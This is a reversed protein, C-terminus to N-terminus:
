NARPALPSVAKPLDRAGPSTIVRSLVRAIQEVAPPKDIFYELGAARARQLTEESLFGSLLIWPLYSRRRGVRQSLTIGDIDPMAFDCIVAATAASDPGSLYAEAAPAQGFPKADYGMRRVLSVLIELVLSDDDVCVIEQGTGAPLDRGATPGQPSLEAAAAPLFVHFVTGEGPSSYVKIVGAHQKVIGHVVALGLGTGEGAKRTTYFPEFIRELVAPTMGCGSDRVSLHLYLGPRFDTSPAEPSLVAEFSEEIVEIIGGNMGKLAHAANACLNLVVQHLQTADGLIAPPSRKLHSLRVSAPLQRRIQSLVEDIVPSPAVVQTQTETRRSFTLIQRVLGRARRSAELVTELDARASHDEPLNMLTLETGGMIPTLMNNLDHAIGGALGGIAELKQARRLEIENRRLLEEAAKKERLDRVLNLLYQRGGFEVLRASMEVPIVTGDKHRAMGERQSVQGTRRLEQVFAPRDGPEAWLGMDLGSRGVVEDYAYGYIRTFGENVEVFVGDDLQSLLAADPFLQFLQRFQGRSVELETVLLNLRENSVSERIQRVIVLALVAVVGVALVEPQRGTGATFLGFLLLVVMGFVWSSNVILIMVERSAFPQRSDAVPSLRGRRQHEVAAFGWMTSFFGWGMDSLSGGAQLPASILIDPMSFDAMILAFLGGILWVFTSVGFGTREQNRARISLMWLLVVDFLPYVLPYGTSVSPHELFGLAAEHLRFQWGVLLTALLLGAAEILNNLLASDRAPPHPIRFLAVFIAQYSPVFFLDQWGPYNERSGVIELAMFALNGLFWALSGFGMIRWFHHPSSEGARRVAIRRVQLFCLLSALTQGANIFYLRAWGSPFAYYSALELVPCVCLLAIWCLEERTFSGDTAAHGAEPAGRVPFPRATNM